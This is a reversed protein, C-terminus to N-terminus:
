KSKRCQGHYLRSESITSLIEQQTKVAKKIAQEGIKVLENETLDYWPKDLNKNM